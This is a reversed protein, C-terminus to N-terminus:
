FMKLTAISYVKLLYMTQNVAALRVCLRVPGSLTNVRSFQGVEHGDNHGTRSQTRSIWCTPNRPGSTPGSVFDSLFHEGRYSRGDSRGGTHVSDRVTRRVTRGHSCPIVTQCPETYTLTHNGTDQVIYLAHLVCTKTAQHM